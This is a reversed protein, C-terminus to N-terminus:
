SIRAGISFLPTKEASKQPSCLTVDEFLKQISSYSMLQRFGEEFAIIAGSLALQKMANFEDNSIPRKEATGQIEILQQSQTIVFNWDAVTNNDEEQSLDLYIDQGVIGVSIACLYQQLVIKKLIGDKVWRRAAISLALSAAVISAVRTGGDAQLVDCDIYITKDPFLTLDVVSRFARGILRSIEVSRANGRAMNSERLTRQRTACPLMAYEATLWGTKQGKLFHPVGTQLSISALIKTGGIEFLVSSSGYGYVDPIARVSRVQDYARGDKRIASKDQKM